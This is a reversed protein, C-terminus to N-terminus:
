VTNPISLCFASIIASKDVTSPRILAALWTLANDLLLSSPKTQQAPKPTVAGLALKTM